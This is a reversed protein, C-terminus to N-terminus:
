GIVGSSETNIYHSVVYSLIIRHHNEIKGHRNQFLLGNTILTSNKKEKIQKNIRNLAQRDLSVAIWM